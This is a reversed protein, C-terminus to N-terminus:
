NVTPANPSSPTTTPITAPKVPAQGGDSGLPAFPNVRGETGDPTLIVNSDNLTTFATDSFISDDLKISKVSLLVTLFDQTSISDGSLPNAELPIGTSQGSSVLNAEQGDPKIFFIYVLVFAIAVAVFILINKIM